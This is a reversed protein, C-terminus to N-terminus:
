HQTLCEAPIYLNRRERRECRHNQFEGVTKLNTLNHKVHLLNELIFCTSLNFNTQFLPQCHDRPGHDFM